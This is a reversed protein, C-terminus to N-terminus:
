GLCKRWTSVQPFAISDIKRRTGKIQDMVAAAMQEQDASLFLAHARELYDKAQVLEGLKIQDPTM